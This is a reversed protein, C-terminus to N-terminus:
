HRFRARAQDIGDLDAVAFPVAFGNEFEHGVGRSIGGLAQDEVIAELAFVVADDVLLGLRAQEGEVIGVAGARAALAEAVGDIEIEIEDDGIGALREVVAGDLRPGLRAVADQKLVGLFERADCPM